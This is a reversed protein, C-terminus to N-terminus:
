EMVTEGDAQPVVRALKKFNISIVGERRLLHFKTSPYLNQFISNLKKGEIETRLQKNSKDPGAYINVTEGAEDKATLQTWSGDGSRLSRLARDVHKAAVVPIGTFQVTISKVLEATQGQIKYLDAFAPDLWENAAKKLFEYGIPKRSNIKIITPDTERDFNESVIADKIGTANEAILMQAKVKDLDERMKKQDDILQDQRSRLSHMNTEVAAMRKQSSADYKRLLQQTSSGVSTTVADKWEELLKDLTSRDVFANAGSDDDPADDDSRLRKSADSMILEQTKSALLHKILYNSFNEYHDLYLHSYRM